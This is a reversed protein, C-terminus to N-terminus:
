RVRIRWLTPHEGAPIATYGAGTLSKGAGTLTTIQQAGPGSLGPRRPAAATWTRGDASSWVVVDLRGPAGCTGTAVFGGAAAAIATVSTGAVGAAAAGPGPPCAPVPLRFERWTRGADASVAAFPVPGSATLETGVAAVRSGQSAVRQLRAGRAGAPVPAAAATWSRGDQSSWVVPQSGLAGVAIFGPGGATVALMDSPQRRPHGAPRSGAPTGPAGGAGTGAAQSWAGLAASWWAVAVPRGAVTHEGVLVYGARDGAAQTIVTGPSALRRLGPAAQWTLGDRSAIFVLQAQRHRVVQGVALWGAGGHTVGALTLGPAAWSGPPVASWHGGAPGTWIAPGGGASGVAVQRGDASALATVSVGATATSALAQQGVFSYRPGALLLFPRRGPAAAPGGATAAQSVAAMSGAALVSGGPGAAAGALRGAAAQGLLLVRQWSRGTRTTFAVNTGRARGAKETAALVAGHDDGTVGTVQLSAQGAAALVGAFQWSAADASRYAVADPQGSVGHGPRILVFGARDPAVGSILSAAGHGAPLRVPAWSVGGDASRWARTPQPAPTRGRPHAAAPVVGGTVVVTNGRAAVQDLVAVRGAGARLGLRAATSRRWSAGDASTWAIATARAPGAAPTNTGVAVFGTATRALSLVRDGRHVAIGPEQHWAQGDPSAWSAQGGVLLWGGPGGALLFPVTGGSADGGPARLSAPRWTAGGDASVLIVPRRAPQGAQSGAAIVTSGSASITALSPLLRPRGPVTAAAFTSDALQAPPYGPLMSAARPAAAPQRTLVVTVIAVALALVAV